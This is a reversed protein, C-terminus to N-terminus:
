PKQKFKEVMEPITSIKVDGNKEFKDLIDKLSTYLTKASIFSLNLSLNPRGNIHFLINVDSYTTGVNFGNAYISPIANMSIEPMIKLKQGEVSEKHLKEESM